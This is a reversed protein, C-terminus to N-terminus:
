PMAPRHDFSYVRTLKWRGQVRIWHHAFQGTERLLDPQGPTLGYFRHRGLQLADDAGLTHTTLSGPVLERRARVEQGSARGEFSAAIARVFAEPSAAVVGGKDHLFRFDDALLDRLAADDRREFALEFLRRDQAELLAALAPPTAPGPVIGAAASPAQAPLPLLALGLIALPLLRM